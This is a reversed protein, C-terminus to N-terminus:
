KSCSRIVSKGVLKVKQITPRGQHNSKACTSLLLEFDVLVVGLGALLPRSDLAVIHKYECRTDGRSQLRLFDSCERM